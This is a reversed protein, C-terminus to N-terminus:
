PRGCTRHHVGAIARECGGTDLGRLAALLPEAQAEDLLDLALRLTEMVVTVAQVERRCGTADGAALDAEIAAV